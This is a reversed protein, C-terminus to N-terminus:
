EGLSVWHDILYRSVSDVRPVKFGPADDGWEGFSQLEARSFWRADDIEHKDVQIDDSCADAIFGLMISSPFPWPQSALYQVNTVRIGSEEMVERAVATELTEGPDVFGALTSYVGEPWEVQRGLLCREIGDAFLKRVVMIVAPDTRPFTQHQCDPNTCLRAHGAAVPKNVIGCRGCFCHSRHWFALGRALAMLSASPNDLMVTMKRLDRFEGELLFVAVLAEDVHTLDLAFYPTSATREDLGLFVADTLDLHQVADFTLFLASSDAQSFYNQDTHILVWRSDNNKQSALWEPSKRQNSARDLLMETYKLM